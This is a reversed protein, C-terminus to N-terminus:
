SSWGPFGPRREVSNALSPPSKAKPTWPFGQEDEGGKLTTGCLDELRAQDELIYSRREFLNDQTGRSEQYDIYLPHYDKRYKEDSSNDESEINNIHDASHRDRESTAQPIPRGPKVVGNVRVENSEILPIGFSEYFNDEDQPLKTEELFLEQLSSIEENLPECEFFSSLGM